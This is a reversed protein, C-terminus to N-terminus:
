ISQRWLGTRHDYIGRGFPEFPAAPALRLRGHEDEWAHLAARWEDPDRFRHMHRHWDWAAAREADEATTMPFTNGAAEWAERAAWWEEESAWEEARYAVLREVTAVDTGRVVRRRRM